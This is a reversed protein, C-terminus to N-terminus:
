APPTTSSAHLQCPACVHVQLCPLNLRVPQSAPQSVGGKASGGASEICKDLLTLGEQCGLVAGAGSSRNSAAALVATLATAFGQRSADRSSGLGKALRRLCYTQAACSCLHRDAWTVYLGSLRSESDLKGTLCCLQCITTSALAKGDFTFM